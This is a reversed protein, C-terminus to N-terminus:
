RRAQCDGSRINAEDTLRTLRELSEEMLAHHNREIAILLRHCENRIATSTAGDSILQRVMETLFTQTATLM